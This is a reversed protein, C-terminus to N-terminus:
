AKSQVPGSVIDILGKGEPGVFRYHKFRTQTEGFQLKRTKPSTFTSYLGEIVTDSAPELVQFLHCDPFFLSHVTEGEKIGVHLVRSNRNWTYGELVVSLPM